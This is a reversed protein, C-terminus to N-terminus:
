EIKSDRAVRAVLDLACGEENCSLLATILEDLEQDLAAAHDVM